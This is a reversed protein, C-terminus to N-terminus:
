IREDSPAAKGWPGGNGETKAKSATGRAAGGRGCFLGSASVRGPATRVDEM